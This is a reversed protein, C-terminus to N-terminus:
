YTAHQQTRQKLLHIGLVCEIETLTNITFNRTGTLWESIEATSRGMKKAFEAQTMGCAAIRDAISAAVLLRNETKRMSVEDMNSLMNELM